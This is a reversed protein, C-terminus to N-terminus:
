GASKKDESYGKKCAYIDRNDKVRTGQCRRSIGCTRVASLYIYAKVTKPSYKRSIPERQLDDFDRMPNARDRNIKIEAMRGEM